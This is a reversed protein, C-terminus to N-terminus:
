KGHFAAHCRRCLVTMDKLDEHGVREYTRHHVQLGKENNCLQCRNGAQALAMNRMQKWHDTKLYELYPLAQLRVIEETPQAGQRITQPNAQRARNPMRAPDRSYRPLRYARVNYNQQMARDVTRSSLLYCGACWLRYEIKRGSEVDCFTLPKDCRKCSASRYIITEAM